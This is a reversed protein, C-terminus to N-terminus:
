PNPAPNMRRRDERLVNSMMLIMKTMRDTPHSNKTIARSNAGALALSKVAKAAGVSNTIGVSVGDFVGVRVSTGVKVKVGVIVGVGVSVAVGVALMVALGVMVSVGPGLRVGLSVGVGEILGVKVGLQVGVPGVSVKVGVVDGNKYSKRSPCTIKVALANLVAPHAHCPM